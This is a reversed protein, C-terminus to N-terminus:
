PSGSSAAPEAENVLSARLSGRLWRRRKPVLLRLVRCVGRDKWLSRGLRAGGRPNVCGPALGVRDAWGRLIARTKAALDVTDAGDEEDVTAGCRVDIERPDAALQPEAFLRRRLSQWLPITLRSPGPSECRRGDASRFLGAPPERIRVSPRSPATRPPPQIYAAVRM